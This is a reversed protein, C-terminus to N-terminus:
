SALAATAEGRRYSRSRAAFMLGSAALLGGGFLSLAIGVWLLAPVKVGVGITAAVNTRPQAPHARATM